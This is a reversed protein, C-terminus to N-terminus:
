QKGLYIQVLRDLLEIAEARPRQFSNRGIISGNGGGDRIARAEDLVSATDKAAGGSFVVVRRGDFCAKVVTGTHKSLHKSLVKDYERGVPIELNAKARAVLKNFLLGAKNAAQRRAAFAADNWALGESAKLWVGAIGHRKLAAFDPADNNSSLDVILM